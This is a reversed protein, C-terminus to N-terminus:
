PLQELATRLEDRAAAAHMGTTRAAVDWVAAIGGGAQGPMRGVAKTRTIWVATRRGAWRSLVEEIAGIADKAPGDHALVRLVHQGPAATLGVTPTAM